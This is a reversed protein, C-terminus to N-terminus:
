PLRLNMVVKLLARWRDRDHALDICGIGGDWERFIWRLITRGDVGTDELHDKKRLNGWWGGICREEGGCTSCARGMENEVEDGAYYKTLTCIM